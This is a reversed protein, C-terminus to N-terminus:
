GFACEQQTNRPSAQHLRLPDTLPFRLWTRSMTFLALRSWETLKSIGSMYGGRESRNSGIPRQMAPATMSATM